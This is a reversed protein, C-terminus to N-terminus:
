PNSKGALLREIVQEDESHCSIYTIDAVFIYSVGDTEGYRNIQAIEAVGDDSLTKVFGTIGSDSNLVDVATVYNNRMAHRLLAEVLNGEDFAIPSHPTNRSLVSMRQAYKTGVEVRPIDSIECLVWGDDTGRPALSSFIYHADSVSAIRGFSFRNQKGRRSYVAACAGDRQLKKLLDILM